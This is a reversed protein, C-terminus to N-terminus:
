RQGLEEPVTKQGSNYDEGPVVTAAPLTGWGYTPQSEGIGLVVRSM